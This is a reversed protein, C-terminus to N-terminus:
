NIYIFTYQFTIIQILLGNLPKISIALNIVSPEIMFFLVYYVDFHLFIYIYLIIPKLVYILLTVCGIYEIKSFTLM